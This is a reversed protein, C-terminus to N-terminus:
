REDVRDGAGPLPAAAPQVLHPEVVERAGRDDVGDTAPAGQHTGGHESRPETLVALVPRHGRDRAAVHRERRDAHKEEPETPEPEVAAGHQARVRAPRRDHEDRGAEASSRFLTTYPLLAARPPPPQQHRFW